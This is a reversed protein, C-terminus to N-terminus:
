TSYNGLQISRGGDKEKTIELKMRSDDAYLDERRPREILMYEYQNIQEVIGTEHLKESSEIRFMDVHLLKKEYINLYTYTPSTIITSSLWLGEAFGKAFTTKGAGLEGYLLIKSHIKALGRAFEQLEEPTDIRM